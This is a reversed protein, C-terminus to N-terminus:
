AGKLNELVYVLADAIVGLDDTERSAIMSIKRLHNELDTAEERLTRLHRRDTGGIREELEEKIIRRLHRRTIKM